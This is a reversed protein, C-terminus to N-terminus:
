PVCIYETGPGCYNGGGSGGGGSGGGWGGGGSGGSGGSGGGSGGGWGGGGSGGSNSGSPPNEGPNENYEAESVQGYKLSTYRGNFVFYAKTGDSFEFNYVKGTKMFVHYGMSQIAQSNCGDCDSAYNSHVPWAALAVTAFLLLIATPKKRM